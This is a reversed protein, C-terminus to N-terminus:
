QYYRNIDRPQLYEPSAGVSEKTETTNDQLLKDRIKSQELDEWTSLLDRLTHSLDRWCDVDQSRKEQLIFHKQQRLGDLSPSNVDLAERNLIRNALEQEEDLIAALNASRLKLRELVQVSLVGLKTQLIQSRQTLLDAM